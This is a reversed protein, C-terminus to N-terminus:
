PTGGRETRQSAVASRAQAGMEERFRAIEAIFAEGYSRAKAEGIGPIFRLAAVDRPLRSAMERLVRDHFIIYPPV